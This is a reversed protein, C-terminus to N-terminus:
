YVEVSNTLAGEDDRSQEVEVGESFDNLFQSSYDDGGADEGGHAGEYIM